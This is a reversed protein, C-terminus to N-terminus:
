RFFCYFVVAFVKAFRGEAQCTVKGPKKGSTIILFGRIKLPKRATSAGSPLLFLKALFFFCVPKPARLLATEIPPADLLLPDSYRSPGRGYKVSRFCRVEIIAKGAPSLAIPEQICRTM